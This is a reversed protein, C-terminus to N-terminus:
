TPPMYMDEARELESLFRADADAAEADAAERAHPCDKHKEDCMKNMHKVADTITDHPVVRVKSADDDAVAKQVLAHRLYIGDLGASGFLSWVKIKATEDKLASRDVGYIAIACYLIGNEDAEPMRIKILSHTASPTASVVAAIDAPM